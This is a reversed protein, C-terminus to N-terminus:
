GEDIGGRMGRLTSGEEGQRYGQGQKDALPINAKPWGCKRVPTRSRAKVAKELCRAWGGPIQRRLPVGSM